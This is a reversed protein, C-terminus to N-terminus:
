ELTFEAALSFAAGHESSVGKEYFDLILRYRGPYLSPFKYDTGWQFNLQQPIGKEYYCVPLTMCVTGGSRAAAQRM